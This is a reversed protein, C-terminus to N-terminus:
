CAMVRPADPSPSTNSVQWRKNNASPVIFVVELERSTAQRASLSALSSHSSSSTLFVLPCIASKIGRRQARRMAPASRPFRQIDCKLYECKRREHDSACTCLMNRISSIQMASRDLTHYHHHDDCALGRRETGTQRPRTDTASLSARDPKGSVHAHSFCPPTLLRHSYIRLAALLLRM